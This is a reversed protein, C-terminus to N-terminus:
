GGGDSATDADPDPVSAPGADQDDTPSEEAAAGTPLSGPAADQDHREEDPSQSMDIPHGGRRDRVSGADSPVSRRTGAEFGVISM